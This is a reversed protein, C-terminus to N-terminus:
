FFTIDSDETAGAAEGRHIALQEATTYSREMESLWQEVELSSPHHELRHSFKGMDAVVSQLIQGVRDQFQLHVLTGSIEDGLHAGVGEFRHASESLAEVGVQFDAMVRNITGEARRIM